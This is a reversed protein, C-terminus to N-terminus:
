QMITIKGQTPQHKHQTRHTAPVTQLKKVGPCYTFNVHQPVQFLPLGVSLINEGLFCVPALVTKFQRCQKGQKCQKFPNPVFCGICKIYSILKLPKKARPHRVSHFGKKQDNRESSGGNKRTNVKKEYNSINVVVIKKPIDKHTTTKQTQALGTSCLMFIVFTSQIEAMVGNRKRRRGHLVFASKKFSFFHCCILNKIGQM